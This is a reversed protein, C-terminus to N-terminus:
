EYNDDRLSEQIDSKILRKLIRRKRKEHTDTLLELEIAEWIPVWGGILIVENIISNNNILTSIFLMSLGIALLTIQKINTLKRRKINKNYEDQLGKKIMSSCGKTENTTHIYLRIDNAKKIDIAKSIIYEILTNSVFERNYTEVLDEKKEIYIKIEKM